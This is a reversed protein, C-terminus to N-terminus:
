SARRKTSVGVLRARHLCSHSIATPGQAPNCPSPRCPGHHLSVVPPVPSAISRGIVAQTSSLDKKIALCLFISARPGLLASDLRVLGLRSVFSVLLPLFFTFCSPPLTCSLGLPTAESQRLIWLSKICRHQQKLWSSGLSSRFSDTVSLVVVCVFNYM